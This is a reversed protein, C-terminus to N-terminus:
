GKLIQIFFIFPLAVIAKVMLCMGAMLNGWPTPYVLLLMGFSDQQLVWHMCLLNSHLRFRFGCEMSPLYCTGPKSIGMWRSIRRCLGNGLASKSAGRSIGHDPVIRVHPHPVSGLLGHVQKGKALRSICSTSGMQLGKRMQLILIIIINIDYSERLIISHGASLM